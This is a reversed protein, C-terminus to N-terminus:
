FECGRHVGVCGLIFFKGFIWVWTTRRGSAAAFNKKSVGLTYVGGKDLFGHRGIFTSTLWILPPLHTFIRLITFRSLRLYSKHINFLLNTMFDYLLHGVNFFWCFSGFFKTLFGPLVIIDFKELNTCKQHIKKLLFTLNNHGNSNQHFKSVKPECFGSIVHYKIELNSFAM